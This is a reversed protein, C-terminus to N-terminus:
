AWFADFAVPDTPLALVKTVRGGAVTCVLAQELDITRKLRAGTARYVAVVHEDDALLYRPDPRYTGDTLEAFSRVLALIAPLGRYTGALRSRGPITWVVDSAFLEELEALDGSAFAAFGRRLLAANPHAATM